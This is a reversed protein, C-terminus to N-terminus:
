IAIARFFQAAQRFEPKANPVIASTTASRTGRGRRDLNVFDNQFRKQSEADIWALGEIVIRKDDCRSGSVARQDMRRHVRARRVSSPARGMARRGPHDRRLAGRGDRTACRQVDAALRRGAQLDEASRSGHRLRDQSRAPTAAQTATAGFADRDLLATSAVATMMWKIADRRDM